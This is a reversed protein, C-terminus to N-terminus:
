KANYPVVYSPLVFQRVYEWQEIKNNASLPSAVKYRNQRPTRSKFDNFAMLAMAFGYLSRESANKTHKYDTVLYNRYVIAATKGKDFCFGSRVTEWFEKITEEDEGAMLLCLNAAHCCRNRAISLDGQKHGHTKSITRSEAAIVNAYDDIINGLTDASVNQVNTFFFLLRLAMIIYELNSQKYGALSLIDRMNRKAGIDFVVIDNPIGYRVEMEVPVGARVVAELRNQGDALTGDEYFKITEGNLKWCGTAMDAAWRKIEKEKKPRNHTNALLYRSAVQPTITEFRTYPQMEEKGKKLMTRIFPCPNHSLLAHAFM